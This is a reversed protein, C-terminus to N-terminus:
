PAKAGGLKKVKVRIIPQRERWGRRDYIQEAAAPGSPSTHM